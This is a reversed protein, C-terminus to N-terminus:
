AVVEILKLELEFYDDDTPNHYEGVSTVSIADEGAFETLFTRADQLTLTTKVAQSQLTRLSDLLSRKAFGGSLTIPRGGLKTGHQRVLKGSLTRIESSSIDGIIFEDSWAMRPHLTISGLTISM